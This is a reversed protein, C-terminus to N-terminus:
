AVPRRRKLILGTVGLALLALTAPEPVVTWDNGPCYFADLFVGTGDLLRGDAVCGDLFSEVDGEVYLRLGNLDLTSGPEIAVLHAFLCEAGFTGRNGNDFLDVLQVCGVDDGGVTLTGLAFNLDFGGDVASAVEFPDVAGAGGEFVLELNALGAMAAPDTSQNEFAAGTMHIKSGPISICGGWKGFTISHTVTVQLSSGLFELVGVGDEGVLFRNTTLAGVSIRYCGYSRSWVGIHTTNEVIHTGGTLEFIGSGFNGITADAVQLTGGMLGYVGSYGSQHGVSLNTVTNTGGTQTFRADGTTGLTLEPFVAGGSSLTVDRLEVSGGVTLAGGNLVLAARGDGQRISGGVALTGGLLECKGEATPKLGLVMDGSCAASGGTQRFLGSCEDGIVICGASLSGAELRYEGGNGEWAYTGRGIGMEGHVVASGGKQTVKGGNPGLGLDLTQCEFTGGNLAFEGIGREGFRADKARLSGSQMTYVAKRALLFTETIEVDGTKQFFSATGSSTEIRLNAVTLKGGTLDYTYSPCSRPGILLTGTVTHEGGSQWFYVDNCSETRAILHGDMLRYAVEHILDGADFVGGSQDSGIWLYTQDAQIRGGTMDVGTGHVILEAEALDVMGNGSVQLGGEFDLFGGPSSAITGGSCQVPDAIKGWGSFGQGAGVVLTQGARHTMGTHTFQSLGATPDRTAPLILLSNAGVHMSANAANLLSGKSLDVLSGEAINVTVGNGGFDMEGALRLGDGIQLTGGTFGYRGAGGVELYDAANSGGTQVIAGRNVYQRSCSLDGGGLEYTGSASSHVPHGLSLTNAVSVSGGTQRFLGSASSSDGIALDAASLVGEQLEYTGFGSNGYYGVTLTERVAHDGSSQTFLAIRNPDSIIEKRTALRVNGSLEYHGCRITLSDAELTGGTQSFVATETGNGSAGLSVNEGVSLSGGSLLYTGTEGGYDGKAYVSFNRTVEVAGGSQEFSGVVTPAVIFDRCSLSGSQMGSVLNNVLLDGARLNVLAHNPVALGGSLTLGGDPAAAIQGHCEVHDAIEGWGGVVQGAGVVLTTGLTHTRGANSYHGFLSGLDMGPAVIVLAEPGITLTAQGARTIAGSSFNALSPGEVQLTVAQDAFDLEGALAIGQIIRSTGGAFTYKGGANVSLYDVEKAGGTQTFAGDIRAERVFLQGATIEFESSSVIGLCDNIRVICGSGVQRFGGEYYNVGLSGVDLEGGSMEYLSSKGIGISEARNIGGRQYFFAEGATGIKEALASLKGGNLEYTGKSADRDAMELRGVVTVTGSDQILHGQGNGWEGLYLYDGVWLDAAGKLTYTGTGRREGLTLNMRVRLSGGTQDVAGSQFDGMSLSLAYASGGAIRATGCNDILVDTNWFPVGAGWNASDYWDGELPNNWYVAEAATSSLM